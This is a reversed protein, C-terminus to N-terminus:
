IKTEREQQELLGHIQGLQYGIWKYFPFQKTSSSYNVFERGRRESFNNHRGCISIIYTAKYGGPSLDGQNIVRITAEKMMFNFVERALIFLYHALLYGQRVGREM